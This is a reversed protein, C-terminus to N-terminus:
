SDDPHLSFAVAAKGENVLKELEKTGRVGGIFEINTDTRPDHIGFLPSLVRDQLVAVDLKEIASGSAPRKPTLGTWGEETRMVFEGRKPDPSANPTLQFEKELLQMLGHPKQKLARYYPLIRLQSSNFAVALFYDSSGKLERRARSASAARHHGDAIYLSPIKAFQEVLQTAISADVRWLAHRVGDAAQFDFLPPKKTEDVVLTDIEASGRYALFVPGTQAKLTIVHRTRDDEKDQRTKEHRKIIGDDYEDISFTGAIGTQEITAGNLRMVIKYVYLSPEKERVLPARSILTQFNSAAKAYVQASHPDVSNELDIEPRSVHLFSLPNGRALERAEDRNVVDYPVASVDKAHAPEPRLARFPRLTAM